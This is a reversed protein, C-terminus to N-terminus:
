IIFCNSHDGVKKAHVGDALVGGRAVFHFYANWVYMVADEVQVRVDQEDM